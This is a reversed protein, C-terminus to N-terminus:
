RTVSSQKNEQMAGKEITLKMNERAEDKLVVFVHEIRSPHALPEVVIRRFLSNPESELKGVTGVPVEAPFFTSYESTVILDGEQVDLAKPVNRVLLVDAADWSLIGDVRSRAIKVAIRISRNYLGEVLTFEGSVAYVRGVLGADTIVAMGKRVKENEGVSLTFMNRDGTNTKGIIEASLLMWNDRPKYGLLKRLEENEAKARRLRSLESSLAINKERLEKADESYGLPNPIWSTAYQLSGVIIATVSRLPQVEESRSVAMLFFSFLVIATLVVYEKFLIIFNFIRHL